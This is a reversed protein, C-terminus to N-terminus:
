PLLRLTNGSIGLMALPSCCMISINQVGNAGLTQTKVFRPKFLAEIQRKGKAKQRKGKAEQRLDLVMKQFGQWVYLGFLAVM